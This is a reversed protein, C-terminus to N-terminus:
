RAKAPMVSLLISTEPAVVGCDRAAFSCAAKWDASPLLLLMVTEAVARPRLKESAAPRPVACPKAQVRLGALVVPAGTALPGLPSTVPVGTGALPPPGETVLGAKM